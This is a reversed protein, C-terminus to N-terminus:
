IVFWETQTVTGTADDTVRLSIPGPRVSGCSFHGIHDTDLPVVGDGYCIEIRAANPSSFTLLRGGGGRVGISESRDLVSDYMLSALEADVTRWTASAKAAAIVETPPPDVRALVVGLRAQLEDDSEYDDIM